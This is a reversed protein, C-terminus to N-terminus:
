IDFIVDIEWTDDIKEIRLKHYTAAKILLKNEHRKPDFDEGSISAKLKFAEGGGMGGGRPPLTLTPTFETIEIKKGIFGYADFHFILENLWSIILGDLSPNEVSVDM